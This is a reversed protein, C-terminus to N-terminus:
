PHSLFLPLDWKCVLLITRTFNCFTIEPVRLADEVAEEPLELLLVDNLPRSYYFLLIDFPAFFFCFILFRTQFLLVIARFIVFSGLCAM